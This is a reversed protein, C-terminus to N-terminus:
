DRPGGLVTVVDGVPREGTTDSPRGVLRGRVAMTTSGGGDLNLAVRAGLARMVRAQEAFSMGISYGPARGDVTVLV